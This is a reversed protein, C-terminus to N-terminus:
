EKDGVDAKLIDNIDGTDNIDNADNINNADSINRIENKIHRM